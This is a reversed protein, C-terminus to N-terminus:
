KESRVKYEEEAALINNIGQLLADPNFSISDIGAKVLFRAFEPIDSPGARM